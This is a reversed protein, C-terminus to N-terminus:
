RAPGCASSLMIWESPITTEKEKGNGTEVGENGNAAIGPELMGLLLEAATQGARFADLVLSTVPPESLHAIDREYFGVVSMEEPVQVGRYKLAQLLGHARRNGYCIVATPRQDLALLHEAAQHGSQVFAQGYAPTYIASTTILQSTLGAASIADAYGSAFKWSAWHKKLQLYEDHIVLAIQRHGLEVLHEVARRGDGYFDVNVRPVDPISTGFLEVIPFGHDALQRYRKINATSAPIDFTDVILGDVQRDQSRELEEAEQQPSNHIFVVPSYSRNGAVDQVGRIVDAVLPANIHSLLLGLLYSKKGALSRGIINPKYNLEQAIRQVRARTEASAGITSDQRNNLVVSVVPPTVGAAKAVDHITPRRKIM